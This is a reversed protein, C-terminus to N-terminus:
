GTGGDTISRRIRELHLMRRRRDQDIPQEEVQRRIEREAKRTALPVAVLRDRLGVDVSALADLPLNGLQVARELRGLRDAFDRRGLRVPLGAVTVLAFGDDPDFRIESIDGATVARGATLARLIELAGAAAREQEEPALGPELALVPLDSPGEGDLVKFPRGQDDVLRLEEAAVLLAPRHEVVRVTLLGDRLDRSVTVTDIWPLDRAGDALTALDLDLLNDGAAVPLRAAVTAEPTRELGLIRVERIALRDSTKMAEIGQYSAVFLGLGVAALIVGLSVAHLMRDSVDDRRDQPLVGVRRGLRAALERVTGGLSLVVEAPRPFGDQMDAFEERVFHASLRATEWLRGPRSRPDRSAMRLRRSAARVRDPTERLRRLSEIPRVLILLIQVPLLALTLLTRGTAAAWDAVRARSRRRRRAAMDVTADQRSRVQAGRGPRRREQATSAGERAGLRQELRRKGLRRNNLRISQTDLIGM